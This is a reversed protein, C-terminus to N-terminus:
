RRGVGFVGRAIERAATRMFIRAGESKLVQEVPSEERRKRTTGSRKKPYSARERPEESREEQEAKASGAELRQALLERASERDVPDSYKSRLPSSSIVGQV